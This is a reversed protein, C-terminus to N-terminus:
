FLGMARAAPDKYRALMESTIEKNPYKEYLQLLDNIKSINDYKNDKIIRSYSDAKDVNIGEIFNLILMDKTVSYEYQGKDLNRGDYLLENLIKLENSEPNVTAQEKFLKEALFLKEIYEKESIEAPKYKQTFIIHEPHDIYDKLNIITKFKCIDNLKSSNEWDKALMDIIDDSINNIGFYNLSNVISRPIDPYKKCLDALKIVEKPDVKQYSRTAFVAKELITKTNEDVCYESYLKLEEPSVSIQQAIKDLNPNQRVIKMKEYAVELNSSKNYKQIEEYDTELAELLEKTYTTSEDCYLKKSLAYAKEPDQEYTRVIIKKTKDTYGEQWYEDDRGYWYGANDLYAMLEPYKSRYEELESQSVKSITKSVGLGLLGALAIFFGKITNTTVKKSVTETATKSLSGKFSVSDMTSSSNIKTSSQNNTQKSAIKKTQVSNYNKFNVGSISNVM